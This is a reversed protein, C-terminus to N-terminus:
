KKTQEFVKEPIFEDDSSPNSPEQSIITFESMAKIQSLTKGKDFSASLKLKKGPSLSNGRM